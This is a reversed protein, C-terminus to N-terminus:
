DLFDQFEVGIDKLDERLSVLSEALIKKFRPASLGHKERVVKSTLPKENLGEMMFSSSIVDRAVESMVELRENLIKMLESKVVLEESSESARDQGVYDILEKSSGDGSNVVKNLSAPTSAANTIDVIEAFTLGTEDMVKMNMESSTLGSEEFDARVKSINIFDSVRNEPLRVLRGTKNTGRGIAQVIWYYAVTSFKNGQVPDYKYVATMLGTMGEQVLDDIEPAGPYRSKFARARSYVLGVNAEVLKEVAAAGKRITETLEGINEPNTEGNMSIEEVAELRVKAKLMNQILGGLHLEEEKSLYKAM